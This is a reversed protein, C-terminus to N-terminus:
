LLTEFAFSVGITTRSFNMSSTDKAKAIELFPSLYVSGIGMSANMSNVSQEDIPNLLFCLAGGILIADSDGKNVQQGESSSNSSSTTTTVTVQERVVQWYTREIGGWGQLVLWKKRFPSGQIEAVLGAPILTLTTPGNDDKTVGTGSTVTSPDKSAYGKARYMGTRLGFGATVYWDFPFWDLQAVGYLKEEGFLDSYYKLDNLKPKAVGLGIKYTGFMRQEIVDDASQNTVQTTASETVAFAPAAFATVVM